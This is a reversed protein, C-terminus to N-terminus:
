VYLACYVVCVPCLLCCMCPVTFLVYLACYVVCVPCLLCCMCPVTFLVYRACYVVCVPCLLCCMRAYYVVCVPCLLCCMCPVTFLPVIAVICHLDCQQTAICLSCYLVCVGTSLVPYVNTSVMSSFPIVLVFMITFCCVYLCLPFVGRACLCLSLLDLCVRSRVEWVQPGPLSGNSHLLQMAQASPLSAGCAVPHVYM